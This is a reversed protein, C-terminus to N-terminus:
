AFAHSFDTVLELLHPIKFHIYAGGNTIYYLLISLVLVQFFNGIIGLRGASVLLCNHMGTYLFQHHVSTCLVGSNM